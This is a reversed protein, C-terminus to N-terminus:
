GGGRSMGVMMAWMMVTCAFAAVIFGSGVVGTAVLAVAIALMPICCAMMLWHGHGVRGKKKEDKRDTDLRDVQPHEGEDLHTPDLVSM